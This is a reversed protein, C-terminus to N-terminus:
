VFAGIQHRLKRGLFDKGRPLLKQLVVQLLSFGGGPGRAGRHLGREGGALVSGQRNEAAAVGRGGLTVAAGRGDRLVADSQEAGHGGVAGYAVDQYGLAEDPLQKVVIEAAAWCGHSILHALNHAEKGPLIVDGLDRSKIISQHNEAM